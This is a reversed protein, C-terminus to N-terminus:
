PPTTDTTVAPTAPYPGASDLPIRTYLVRSEDSWQIVLANGKLYLRAQSGQTSTPPHASEAEFTVSGHVNSNGHLHLLSEPAAQSGLSVAGSHRMTVSTGFSRLSYNNAGRGKLDRVDVAALHSITGEGGPPEVRVASYSTVNWGKGVVNLLPPAYFGYVGAFSATGAEIPQLRLQHHFSSFTTGRVGSSVGEIGYLSLRARFVDVLPIATAETPAVEGGGQMARAQLAGDTSLVATAARYLNTDAGLTLGGSPGPVPLELRGDATLVLRPAAPGGNRINLLPGTTPNGSDNGIFIGQCATGAGLLAISLASADADPRGPKAHTIKVTGKGEERGQVGVATDLPNTSVVDLAEATPDGAGGAPDHFISVTHATGANQVRLAHQPNEPHDQNVALLRGLASAGRNSYLVAGAGTSATNDLNLAGGVSASPPVDGSPVIALATQGAPPRIEVTEAVTQAVAREAGHLILAGVGGALIGARALLTRRSSEASEPRSAYV